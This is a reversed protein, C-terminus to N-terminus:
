RSPNKKEEKDKVLKGPKTPQLTTPLDEGEWLFIPGTETISFNNFDQKSAWPFHSKLTEFVGTRM